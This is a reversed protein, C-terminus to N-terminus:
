ANEMGKAGSRDATARRFPSQDPDPEPMAALLMQAYDSTPNRFVDETEGQEVVNGRHLLLVRDCILRVVALDHSIFLFTLDFANKLETLLRLIQAQVSVDLASTPEDLLLLNPRCSLARAICVRQRQGGSLEHPYRDLHEPRLHVREILERVWAAREKHNLDVVERHIELPEAVIQRVTMRPDLSAYPDQFVIQIRARLQRLEERDLSSLSVGDFVVDGATIRDLQLICRTLTSKGSGSEGVIGFSQGRAVSFSAGNLARLSPQHGFWRRRGLPYDKVVDKVDLIAETRPTRPPAAAADVPRAARVSPVAALLAKTYPDQPRKFIADVEGAEVIRGTNMVAVHSCIQAVIGLNHTIFLVTLGDERIIDYLLALVQAQVSVDLATTPEDAVLLTPRGILAMAILVRQRMGGSFQHPYDDLRGAPNPIRVRDLMEVALERAARRRRRLGATPPLDLLAPDHAAANLAVDILQDEIRFAPNLNTTPDQFIMGIRRGRLARMQEERLAFLDQGDFHVSGGTYRGPPTPVLRSISLATLSKGSGTEGVIGWTQGREVTLNVGRLAEVRRDYSEMVLHLDSVQLFPM